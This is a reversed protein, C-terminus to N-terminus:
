KIETIHLSWEEKDLDEILQYVKGNAITYPFLHLIDRDAISILIKKLSKGDLNYIYLESKGQKKKYPIVYIKKDAIKISKIPPFYKPYKLYKKFRIRISSKILKFYDETAKKHNETVELKDYNAQITYLKNGNKDFIYIADNYEGEVIIRDDIPYSIPRRERAQLLINIDKGLQFYRKQRLIEKIENFQSDYISTITYFTKEIIGSKTGIFQEGLPMLNYENKTNIEKIYEGDRTFYSLRKLSKVLLYDPQVNIFIEHIGPRPRFEQPGEGEKGIKRQLKFDTTSYIYISTYELIYIQGNDVVISQPDCIQPLIISKQAM